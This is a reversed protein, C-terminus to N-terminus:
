LFPPFIIKGEKAYGIFHKYGMYAFKVQAFEEKSIVEKELLIEIVDKM